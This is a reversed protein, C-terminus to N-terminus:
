NPLKKVECLDQLMSSDSCVVQETIAPTYAFNVADKAIVYVTRQQVFLVRGRVTEKEMLVYVYQRGTSNDEYLCYLPLTHEYEMSQTQVTGNITQGPYAALTLADPVVAYYRLAQKVPDYQRNTITLTKRQTDISTGSDVPLDFTIESFNYGMDPSMFQLQITGNGDYVSMVMGNQAIREGPTANVTAVYGNVPCKVIGGADILEQLSAAMATSYEAQANLYLAATSDRVAQSAQRKYLEADKACALVALDLDAESYAFLMDGRRVSEGSRKYVSTVTLSYPSRMTIQTDYIVTAPVTYSSRLVQKSEMLTEVTPLSRMHIQQSAYMALLIVISFAVFLVACIRRLTMKRTM